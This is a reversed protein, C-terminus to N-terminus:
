MAPKSYGKYRVGDMAGGQTNLALGSTEIFWRPLCAGTIFFSFHAVGKPRSHFLGVFIPAVCAGRAFAM